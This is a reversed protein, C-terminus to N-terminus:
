KTTFWNINVGTAGQVTITTNGGPLSLVTNGNEVKANAILSGLDLTQGNYNTSTFALTDHTPDFGVVTDSGNGPSFIFVDKGAGAVFTDNGTGAIFFGGGSGAVISDNGSGAGITDNGSGGVLTDNGATGNIVANGSGAVISDDGASGLASSNGSGMVINNVPGGSVGGTLILFDNGSDGVVVKGGSSADMFLATTNGAATGTLVVANLSSDAVVNTLVQSGTGAATSGLDVSVLTTGSNFGGGVSSATIVTSNVSSATVGGVTVPTQLTISAPAGNGTAPVTVATSGTIVTGQLAASVKEQDSGSLTSNPLTIQQGGPLTVAM